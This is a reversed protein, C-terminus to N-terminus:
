FNMAGQKPTEDFKSKVFGIFARDPNKLIPCGTDVWFENWEKELMYIDFGKAYQRAKEYTDADLIPLKPTDSFKGSMTSASTSRLYFHVMDEEDLKVHYDPLHDFKVLDKIMQKFKKLPSQSGSKKLLLALSISWKKQVGCHKRAMEYVRRELPKALRFYDSNLTLVEGDRIANFVWDSLKIECWLMRGDQENNKRVIDSEDILGFNKTQVQGGTKINTKIRTGALRDLAESLALYERGSSGRNTFRLLDHTTIRIRPSSIDEGRKLKSMLQSVCYVLVDKDYITAIGKVSPTIEVWNGNHEYRRIATDPKKSLTYFPHEMQPMIDKLVADAVDCVFLNEEHKIPLLKVNTKNNM